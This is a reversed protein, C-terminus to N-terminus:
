ESDAAVKNLADIWLARDEVSLAVLRVTHLAQNIEYQPLPILYFKKDDKANLTVYYKHMNYKEIFEKNKGESRLLKGNGM